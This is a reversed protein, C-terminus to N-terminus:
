RDRSWSARYAGILGAAVIATIPIWWNITGERTVIGAFATGTLAVITTVLGITVFRRSMPRFSTNIDIEFRGFIAILIALGAALVLDFLPRTIWWLATGPEISFFVGDFAFIGAATILSLSTLHWLYITMMLGSIAVIWRWAKPRSASRGVVSSSALIIGIQVLALIGVAMNPPTINNPGGGPITVMAVPYWGLTTLVVLTALALTAISLGFRATIPRRSSDATAWAYGLQHVFSWVFLYNIWGVGPVDFGIYAVDILLAIGGLTAVSMWGSRKWWAYTVPAIAILVLYVALFWVPITANLVGAYVLDADIFSSLVLALVTWTLILPVAPTFLRRFRSVIWTRRNTRKRDLARANAYGGVFFFIPMVQVVWTFWGAYPIWELTNMVIVDGDSQIWVSASLWHGLVVVALAIVRWTDVVRNRDAPTSDVAKDVGSMYRSAM